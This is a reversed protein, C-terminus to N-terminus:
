GGFRYRVGLSVFNSGEADIVTEFGGSRHHIRVFGEWSSSSDSWLEFTIEGMMFFLFRSAERDRDRLTEVEPKETAYSVGLGYALSTNVYSDWPFSTWRLNPSINFELHDQLGSHFGVNAEAELLLPNYLRNLTRSAGLVWIYSDRLKTSGGLIQVFRNDSFKGGYAFVSWPLVPDPDSGSASTADGSRQARTFSQDVASQTKSSDVVSRLPVRVSGEVATTPLGPDPSGDAPACLSCLLLLAVGTPLHVSTSNIRSVCATIM